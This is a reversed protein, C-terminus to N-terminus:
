RACRVLDTRPVKIARVLIEQSDRGPLNRRVTLMCPWFTTSSITRPHPSRKNSALDPSPVKCGPLKSADGRELDGHMSSTFTPPLTDCFALRDAAFGESLHVGRARGVAVSEAFISSLLSRSRENARIPGIPQRIVTTVASLGVLFVFKEWIALEIDSSVAVDIKAKRCLNAFTDVRESEKGDFEGVVIKQMTGVQKVVGPRAINAGIYCLAGVTRAAGFADRLVEDKTVGNQLSLVATAPGVLPAIQSVAEATDWLKVALIVLDVPGVAKPDAEARVSVTVDGLESEIRLGGSRLAALQAGRAIFSVDAGADALRGGFYGGVGGAGVVAIRM